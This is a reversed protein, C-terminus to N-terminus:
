QAAEGPLPEAPDVHQAPHFLDLGRPDRPFAQEVVVPMLGAREIDDAVNVAATALQLGQELPQAVREDTVLIAARDVRAVGGPALGHEDTVQGVPSRVRGPHEAQDHAHDRGPVGQRNRAVMLVLQYPCQRAALDLHAVAQGLGQGLEGTLTLLEAPLDLHEAAVQNGMQHEVAPPQHDGM